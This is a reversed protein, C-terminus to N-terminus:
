PTMKQKGFHFDPPTRLTTLARGRPFSGARRRVLLLLTPPACLVCASRPMTNTHAGGRIGVLFVDHMGLLVRSHRDSTDRSHEAVLSEGRLLCGRACRM